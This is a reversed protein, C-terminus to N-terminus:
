LLDNLKNSTNKIQSTYIEHADDNAKTSRDVLDQLDKFKELRVYDKQVLETVHTTQRVCSSIKTDYIKKM